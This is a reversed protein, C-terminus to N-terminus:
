EMVAAYVRKNKNHLRTQIAHCNPCLVQLNELKNNYHNSDKHHLELVLNDRSGLWETAGCCECRYEKIGDRILKQLLIHSSTLIDNNM